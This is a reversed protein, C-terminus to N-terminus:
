WPPRVAHRDSRQKGPNSCNMPYQASQLTDDFTFARQCANDLGAAAAYSWIGDISALALLAAALV